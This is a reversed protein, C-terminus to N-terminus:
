KVLNGEENYYNLCSKDLAGVKLAVEIKAEESLKSGEESNFFDELIVARISFNNDNEKFFRYLTEVEEKETEKLHGRRQLISTFRDYELKIDKMIDRVYNKKTLKYESQIEPHNIYYRLHAAYKEIEEETPEKHNLKICAIEAIAEFLLNEKELIRFLSAWEGNEKSGIDKYPSSEEYLTDLSCCVFKDKAYQLNGAIDKKLIEDCNPSFKRAGHEIYKFDRYLFVLVKTEWSYGLNIEKKRESSM